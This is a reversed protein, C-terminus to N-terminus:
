KKPSSRDLYKYKVYPLLIKSQYHKLKQKIQTGLNPKPQEICDLNKAFVCHIYQNNKWIDVYSFHKLHFNAQSAVKILDGIEIEEDVVQLEEAENQKLYSQYQPSPYTLIIVAQESTIKDLNAFLIKHKEIPLHEIVDVLSVLDIPRDITTTVESFNELIDTVLFDIKESIITKKAYEINRESIDCAWIHGSTLKKAIKEPVIGIGCGIDLINSNEFTYNKILEIAQDIRPNGYLRYQVMRSDTFNNYFNKVETSNAM